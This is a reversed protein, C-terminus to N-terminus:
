LIDVRSEDKWRDQRGVSSLTPLRASRAPKARAASNRGFKRGKGARYNTPLRLPHEAAARYRPRSDKRKVDAAAARWKRKARGTDNAKRATRPGKRHRRDRKPVNRRPQNEQACRLYATLTKLRVSLKRFSNRLGSFVSFCSLLFM